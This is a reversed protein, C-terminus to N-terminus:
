CELRDEDTALRISQLPSCGSDRMRNGIGKGRKMIFLRFNEKSNEGSPTRLSSAFCSRAAKALPSTLAILRAVTPLRPRASADVSSRWTDSPSAVATFDRDKAEGLLRFSM